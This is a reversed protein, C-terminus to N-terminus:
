CILTESANSMLTICVKSGDQLKQSWFFVLSSNVFGIDENNNIIIIIM